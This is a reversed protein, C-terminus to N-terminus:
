NLDIKHWDPIQNEPIDKWYWPPKRKLKNQELKINFKKCYEDRIKMRNIWINDQSVKKGNYKVVHPKGYLDIFAVAGKILYVKKNDSNEFDIDGQLNIDIVPFIKSNISIIPPIGNTGDNVIEIKLM